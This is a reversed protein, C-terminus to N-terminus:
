RFNSILVVDNTEVGRSLTLQKYDKSWAFRFIRETKFSTLQRPSEGKFSQLWINGIGGITDIYALSQGDSTWHVEAWTKVTPSVSFTRIPEGGEIPLVVLDVIGTKENGRWCAILNGDPSIAGWTSNYRTLQVPNSKEDTSIKWLTQNRTDSSTYVVMQGDPTYQPLYDSTNGFTLQKLNEGNINMQWIKTNGSRESAFVIHRGNPSVSPDFDSHEGFTLQRQNSGDSNMSWIDQSGGATSVYVIKGDPTWSFGWYDNRTGPSSTIQKAQETQAEPLVWVFPRIDSQVAVINKSDSTLSISGYNSLDNTIQRTKGDKLSVLWVQYPGFSYDSVTTMIGSKDPLFAIRGIFKWRESTITRVSKDALRVEILNVQRGSEAINGYVCVISKGDPSWIPSHLFGPQQRTILNQEESRDSTNAVSLSVEGDATQRIFSFQTGDPSIASDPFDKILKRPTGGLIPIQYSSPENDLGTKFYNIYNGDPSFVVDQYDVNSPPILQTDTNTTIQRLWLSRQRAEDVVYVVYKGDPSITANIANRATTLRAVKMSQSITNLDSPPNILKYAAFAVVALAIILAVFAAQKPFLSEKVASSKLQSASSSIPNGGNQATHQDDIEANTALKGIDTQDSVTISHAEQKDPAALFKTQTIDEEDDNENELTKVDAVFRYGRKPVTEIYQRKKSDEGLAKRLISINFSLNGEEVFSDQWLARMLDEKELLRGKNEILVLLMDFAKPTLAVPVGERLLLREAPILTFAGFEYLRKTKKSM